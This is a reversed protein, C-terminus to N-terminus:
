QGGIRAGHNVSRIPKDVKQGVQTRRFPDGQVCLSVAQVGVRRLEAQELEAKGARVNEHIRQRVNVECRQPLCQAPAFQQQVAAVVIEAQQALVVVEHRVPNEIGHNGRAQQAHHFKAQLIEHRLRESHRQFLSRLFGVPCLARKRLSHLIVCTVVRTVKV